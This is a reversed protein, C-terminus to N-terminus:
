QSQPDCCSCLADTSPSRCIETHPLIWTTVKKRGRGVNKKKETIQEQQLPSHRKQETYPHFAPNLQTSITLDTPTQPNQAPCRSKKNNPTFLCSLVLGTFPHIHIHM